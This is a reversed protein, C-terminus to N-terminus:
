STYTGYFPLKSDSPLYDTMWPYLPPRGLSFRFQDQLDDLPMLRDFLSAISHTDIESGM